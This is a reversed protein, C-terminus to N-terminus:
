MAHRRWDCKHGADLGARQFRLDDAHDITKASSASSVSVARQPGDLGSKARRNSLGRTAFEITQADFIVVGRADIWVAPIGVDVFSSCQYKGFL